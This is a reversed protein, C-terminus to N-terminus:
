VYKSLLLIEKNNMIIIEVPVILCKIINKEDKIFGICLGYFTMVSYRIHVLKNRLQM